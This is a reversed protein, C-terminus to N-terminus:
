TKGSTAYATAAQGGLSLLNGLYQNQAGVNGTQIGLEMQQKRWLDESEFQQRRIAAEMATKDLDAIGSLGFRQMANQEAQLQLQRDMLGLAGQQSQGLVGALQAQAQQQEQLRMMSSEAAATQGMTAANALVQRRAVGPAGVGSKMLSLQQAMTNDLNRKYQMEALSPAQGTASAQLQNALALQRNMIDTQNGTDLKRRGAGGMIQQLYAKNMMAQNSFDFARPDYGGTDKFSQVNYDVKEPGGILGSALEGVFGLAM